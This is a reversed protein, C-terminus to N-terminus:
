DLPVVGVDMPQAFDSWLQDLMEADVPGDFAVYRYRNVLPEDDAALTFEGLVCPSFVFYPKDPHLRVPQPYRVNDPHQMVAIGCEADDLTGTMAVWNPRSHNGATRTLGESTILGDEDSGLWATPGRMAMGGYHYELVHLPEDHVCVQSSTIDFLHIDERNYARVNWNEHLVVTTTGDDNKAIHELRM